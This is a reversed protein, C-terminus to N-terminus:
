RPTDAPESDTPEKEAPVDFVVTAGPLEIVDGPRLDRKTTSRNNVTIAETAVVTYTGRKEDHVITAHNDRMDPSGAITVDADAAAGIVTKEGTLDLVQTAGGTPSLVEVNAKGRTNRFRLQALLAALLLAGVFPLVFLVGYDERPLGFLTGAFYQRETEPGAGGDANVVAIKVRRYETPSIGARYRVRYEALIRDRIDAYVRGLRGGDGAAYVTGGGDAAIEALAPDGGGTFDTGFVGVGHRRVAAIAEDSTFSETGYVPHPREAHEAFPYNEGDSLILLVRRGDAESLDTAALSVARYLETYADDAEPRQIEELIRDVTRMSSTPELILRYHTNFTALAIRDRPNDIRDTFTQIAEQVAAMRMETPEETPTGDIRDYMSGSNDILLFFTIGETEAARPEVSLIEVPRYTGGEPAERIQLSEATIGEVSEGAIDTIGLYVDVTQRTLLQSTDIEAARVSHVAAATETTQAAIQQPLLVTILALAAAIVAVLPRFILAANGFRLVDGYKLIGSGSEDIAEDNREVSEKASNPYLVLEGREERLEAHQPAIRRYGSLFVDARRDSGVTIRRQNLIFEKGKYLGNLLRLVGITYRREVLGYAGTVALGYVVLGVPRAYAADLYLPLVEVVVGGLAGGLLGGGLGVLGRRLSRRRVGESVGVASGLITWGIVRAVIVSVPDAAGLLFLMGQGLVFGGAGGLAGLLAGFAGGSLIRQLSGAVMGDVAGFFAGMVVGFAVGSAISFLLYSSFASQYVLLTEMVPWVAVGALAGMALYVLRRILHSM